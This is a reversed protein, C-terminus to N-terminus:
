KFGKARAVELAGPSHLFAWLSDKHEERPSIMALPYFAEPFVTSDLQTTVLNMSSADTAYVFAADTTALRITEAAMRVDGTFIVRPKLQEWLGAKELGTRAYAGAPALEPDAVAIRAFRADLLQSLDAPPEVGPATVLALRNRLYASDVQVIKGEALLQTLAAPGAALFVDARAGARIQQALLNSAGTHYDFRNGYATQWEAAVDAVSAALFLLPKEPQSCALAALWALTLAAMCTRKM